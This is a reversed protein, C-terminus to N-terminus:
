VDNQYLKLVGAKTLEKIDIYEGDSLSFSNLSWSGASRNYIKEDIIRVINKHRVDAQLKAMLVELADQTGEIVQLFTQRHLYLAGTVGLRKNNIRSKEAIDSLVTNTDGDTIQYDSTYAIIHM